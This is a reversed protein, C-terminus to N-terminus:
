PKFKAASFKPMFRRPRLVISEIVSPYSSYITIINHGLGVRM